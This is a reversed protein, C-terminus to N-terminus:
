ADLPAGISPRLIRVFAISPPLDRLRDTLLNRPSSLRGAAHNAEAELIARCAPRLTYGDGRPMAGEHWPLISHGVECAEHWRHKAGPQSSGPLIRRRGSIYLTRLDAKRIVDM